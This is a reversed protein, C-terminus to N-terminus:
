LITVLYANISKIAVAAAAKGKPNIAPKRFEKPLVIGVHTAGRCPMVTNIAITLTNALRPFSWGFFFSEIRNKHLWLYNSLTM